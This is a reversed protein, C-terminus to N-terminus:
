IHPWWRRQCLSEGELDAAYGPSRLGTSVPRPNFDPARLGDSTTYGPGQVIVLRPRQGTVLRWLCKLSNFFPKKM